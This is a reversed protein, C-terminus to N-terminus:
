TIESREAQTDEELIDPNCRIKPETQPSCWTDLDVHIEFSRVNIYRMCIFTITYKEASIFRNFKKYIDNM